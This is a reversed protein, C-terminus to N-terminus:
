LGAGNMMQWRKQSCFTSAIDAAIEVTPYLRKATSRRCISTGGRV